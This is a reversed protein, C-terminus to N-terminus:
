RNPKKLTQLDIAEGSKVSLFDTEDRPVGQYFCVRTRGIVEATTGKVVLATAEDIGIGLYQPYTKKFLYMDKFRNRQTFHQDIGVGPLFNFGREYGECIIDNPGLPNGRCLYEGQITAGASSGGIVGGRKLVGHLKEYFATGEYADVFRWQRGGDFWVADAKDLLELVEPKTVAEHTRGTIVHVKEIGARRLFSGSNAPIPDPMSTPLVVFTKQKGGALEIFRNIVETPMGGGGVILLSGNPVEPKRVTKPPYVEGTRGHAAKRFATYDGPTRKDLIMKRIPRGAGEALLVTVTSNGLVRLSRGQVVLATAEDVGLGVFGPHKNLVAQLRPERQRALFHQDIVVGPLLDLGRALRYDPPQGSVIMLKSMIAAGASTGWITGGRKLLSQLEKEVLTGAYADALRGQDGGAIWVGTAEQLPKVFGTQNATGKNRTHLLTIEAIGLKQWREKWAVPKEADASATPIIVLKAKDKGIRNFFFQDIESPTAGGGQVLLTGAGIGDIEIPAPTTVDSGPSRQRDQMEPMAAAIATLLTLVLFPTALRMLHHM